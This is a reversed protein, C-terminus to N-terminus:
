PKTQSISIRVRVSSRVASRVTPGVITVPPEVLSKVVAGLIAVNLKAGTHILLTAGLTMESRAGASAVVGASVIVEASVVAGSLSPAFSLFNGPIDVPMVLPIDVPIVVVFVPM